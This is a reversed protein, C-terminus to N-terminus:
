FALGIGCNFVIERRLALERMPKTIGCKLYISQRGPMIRVFGSYFGYGQDGNLYGAFGVEAGAKIVKPGFAIGGSVIFRKTFERSGVDGFGAGIRAFGSVYPGYNLFKEANLSLKVFAEQYGGYFCFKPLGPQIFPSQYDPPPNPNPGAPQKPKPPDAPPPNPTTEVKKRKFIYFGDRYRRKEVTCAGLLLSIILIPIVIRATRM